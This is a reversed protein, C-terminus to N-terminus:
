GEVSFEVRVLRKYFRLEPQTERGEEEFGSESFKGQLVLRLSSRALGLQAALADCFAM